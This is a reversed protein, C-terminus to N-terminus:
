HEPPRVVDRTYWNMTNSLKSDERVKQFLIDPRIPVHKRSGKELISDSLRARFEHLRSVTRARVEGPRIEGRDLRRVLATVTAAVEEEVPPSVVAVYDDFFADRGGCSPTSVVPLGCLLYEVAAYCAGECESLILGVRSENLVKCIQSQTLDKLRTFPQFTEPPTAAFIGEGSNFDNAVVVCSRVLRALHHRKFLTARAVMVADFRKEATPDIAYSGEDLLCNNSAFVVEFGDGLIAKALVDEAHSNVMVVVHRSLTPFSRREAAREVTARISSLTAAELHWAFGFYLFTRDDVLELLKPLSPHSNHFLAIRCDPTDVLWSIPQVV